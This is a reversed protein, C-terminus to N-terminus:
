DSIASNAWPNPRQCYRVCACAFIEFREGSIRYSFNCIVSGLSWLLFIGFLGIATYYRLMPKQEEFKRFPKMCLPSLQYESWCLSHTAMDPPWTETVSPMALFICFIMTYPLLNLFRFRYFKLNSDQSELDTIGSNETSFHSLHLLRYLLCRRCCCIVM